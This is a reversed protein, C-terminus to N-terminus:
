KTLLKPLRPAVSPILSPEWKDRTSLKSVKASGKGPPISVGAPFSLGNERVQNQIPLLVAQRGPVHPRQSPAPDLGLGRLGSGAAKSEQAPPVHTPSSPKSRGAGRGEGGRCTSTFNRSLRAGVPGERPRICLRPVWMMVQWSAWRTRCLGEQERGRLGRGPNCINQANEMTIVEGNGARRQMSCPLPFSSCTRM